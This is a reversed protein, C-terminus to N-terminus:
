RNELGHQYGLSQAAQVATGLGRTYGIVLSLKSVEAASEDREAIVRGLNESLDSCQTAWSARAIREAELAATLREVEATAAQVAERMDEVARSRDGEAYAPLGDAHSDLVAQVIHGLYAIQKGYTRRLPSQGARTTAGRMADLLAENLAYADVKGGAAVERLLANTEAKNTRSVHAAAYTRATARSSGSFDILPRAPHETPEDSSAIREVETDVEYVYPNGDNTDALVISRTGDIPSGISEIVYPTGFFQITDGRQLDAVTTTVITDHSM